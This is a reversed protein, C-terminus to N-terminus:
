SRKIMSAKIYCNDYSHLTIEVISNQVMHHKIM